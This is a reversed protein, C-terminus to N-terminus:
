KQAIDKIKPIAIFLQIFLYVVLYILVTLRNLFFVLLDLLSFRFNIM